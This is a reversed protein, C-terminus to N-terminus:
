IVVPTPIPGSLTPIPGSLTPIPGSLKPIPGGVIYTNNRMWVDVLAVDIITPTALRAGVTQAGESAATPTSKHQTSVPQRTCTSIAESIIAM